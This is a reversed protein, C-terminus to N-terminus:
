NAPKLSMIYASLADFEPAALQLDPMPPHPDAIWAKLAEESQGPRAAVAPFPPGADGGPADPAIVHCSVCWRTALEKGRAVEDGAAQAGGVM